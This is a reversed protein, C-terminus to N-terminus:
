SENITSTIQQQHKVIKALKANYDEKGDPSAYASIQLDKL